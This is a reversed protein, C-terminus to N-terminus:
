HNGRNWRILQGAFFSDGFFDFFKKANAFGDEKALSVIEEKTLEKGNITVKRLYGSIEIDAVSACTFVGIPKCNTTRMGTYLYLIDDPKFPRKRTSRITQSKKGSQILDVFQKKFNLAPM